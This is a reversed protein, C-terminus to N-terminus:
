DLSNGAPNIGQTIARKILADSYPPHERTAKGERHEEMTLAEYRIDSPIVGGMM